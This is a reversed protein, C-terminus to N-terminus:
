TIIISLIKKIIQDREQYRPQLHNLRLKDSM